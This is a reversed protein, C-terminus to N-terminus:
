GSLSVTLVGKGVKESCASASADYISGVLDELELAM